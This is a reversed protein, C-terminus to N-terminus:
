GLLEECGLDEVAMMVRELNNWWIVPPINISWQWIPKTIQWLVAWRYDRDLAGRTYGSIGSEMLTDHYLNLLPRELAQRREPYWHVAMMHALDHTPVNISWLDFDFIRV